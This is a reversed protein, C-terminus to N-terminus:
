LYERKLLKLNLNYIENKESLSKRDIKFDLILLQPPNAPPAYPGISHGEIRTLIEQIDDVNVEVPHVLTETTEQFSPYSQVVGESFSLDNENILYDLRKKISDDFSFNKNNVLKQLSEIEPELFTLTELYKDIYFHDAEKYHDIVAMNVAQKKERILAKEQVLQIHTELRDLHSLQSYFQTIAFILPLLGVLMAYLLLRKRPINELM